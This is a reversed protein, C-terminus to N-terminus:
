MYTMDYPAMDYPLGIIHSGYLIAAMDFPAMDHPAWIISVIDPNFEISM